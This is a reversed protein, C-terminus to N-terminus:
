IKEGLRRAETVDSYSELGFPKTVQRTRTTVSPTRKTRIPSWASLSKHSYESHTLSAETLSLDSYSELGFPKQSMTDM